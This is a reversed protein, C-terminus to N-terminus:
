NESGPRLGFWKFPAKNNKSSTHRLQFQVKNLKYPGFVISM